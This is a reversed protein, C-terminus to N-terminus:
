GLTGVAVQGVKLLRRIRIVNRRSERLIACQAVRRRLPGSSLKIVAGLGREWQRSRMHGQRASLAMRRTLEGAQGRLAGRAVQRVILLRRIRVVNCGSERLVASGAVRGRLPGSRLEVVALRFEGQRSRM